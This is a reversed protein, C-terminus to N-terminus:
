QVASRIASLSNPRCTSVLISQTFAPGAAHRRRGRAAEPFGCGSSAPIMATLDGTAQQLIGRVRLGSRGRPEMRAIEQRGRVKQGAVSEALVVM